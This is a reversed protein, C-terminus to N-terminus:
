PSYTPCSDSVGLSVPGSAHIRLFVLAKRDEPKDKKLDKEVVVTLRQCYFRCTIVVIFTKQLDQSKISM